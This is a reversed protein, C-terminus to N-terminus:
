FSCKFLSLLKKLFTDSYKCIDENRDNPYLSAQQERPLMSSEVALHFMYTRLYQAYPEAPVLPNRTTAVIFDPMPCVAFSIVALAFIPWGCSSSITSARIRRTSRRLTSGQIRADASHHHSFFPFVSNTKLDPHASHFSFNTAAVPTTSVASFPGGKTRHPFRPSRIDFTKYDHEVKSESCTYTKAKPMGQM